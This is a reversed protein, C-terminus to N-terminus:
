LGGEVGDGIAIVHPRALYAYHSVDHSLSPGNNYDIGLETFTLTSPFTEVALGRTTRVVGLNM